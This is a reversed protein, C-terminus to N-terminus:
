TQFPMHTCLMVSLPCDPTWLLIDPTTQEKCGKLGLQLSIGEGDEYGEKKAKRHEGKRWMGVKIEGTPYLSPSDNNKASIHQIIAGLSMWIKIGPFQLYLQIPFISKAAIIISISILFNIRSERPPGQIYDYTNKSSPPLSFNFWFYIIHLSFRSAVRSAKFISLPAKLQLFCRICDLLQFPIREQLRQLSHPGALVKIKKLGTFNIKSEQGGSTYVILSCM